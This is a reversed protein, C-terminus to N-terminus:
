WAGGKRFKGPEARQEDPRMRMRGRDLEEPKPEDFKRRKPASRYGTYAPGPMEAEQCALACAWFMDAHVEDSDNELRVRDGTGKARKIARLDARIAPDGPIRITGDEFRKKM